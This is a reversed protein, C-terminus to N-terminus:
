LIDWHIWATKQDIQRNWINAKFNEIIKLNVNWDCTQIERSLFYYQVYIIFLVVTNNLSIVHKFVTVTLEWSTLMFLRRYNNETRYFFSAPLIETFTYHTQLTCTYYWEWSNGGHVHVNWSIKRSRKGRANEELTKRSHEPIPQIPLHNVSIQSVVDQFTQTNSYQTQHPSLSILHLSFIHTCKLTKSM